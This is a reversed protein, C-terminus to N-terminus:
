PRYVADYGRFSPHTYRLSPWPLSLFLYRSDRVGRLLSRFSRCVWPHSFHEHLRFAGRSIWFVSAFEDPVRFHLYIDGLLCASDWVFYQESVQNSFFEKVQLTLIKTIKNSFECFLFIYLVITRNRPWSYEICLSMERLSTVWVCILGRFRGKDKKRKGGIHWFCIIGKREFFLCGFFIDFSWFLTRISGIISRFWWFCWTIISDDYRRISSEISVPELIKINRAWKLLESPNCEM